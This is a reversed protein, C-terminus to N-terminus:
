LTADNCRTVGQRLFHFAVVKEVETKRRDGSSLEHGTKNAMAVRSVIVTAAGTIGSSPKEEFPSGSEVDM